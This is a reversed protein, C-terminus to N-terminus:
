STRAVMVSADDHRVAADRILTAALLHPDRERIGPYADLSWKPTLGDSHMVILAGPVLEARFERVTKVNAGVIGPSSVLARRQAGDDVWVAVNGVGAFTLTAALPDLRVVAVAAGRTSRLAGNLSRITQAPPEDAPGEGFARVAEGSAIAALPGHGLGDALLLMTVGGHTRVACADGCVSEGSMTRTLAAVKPREVPAAGRWFTAIMVTGRGVVSHSDFWTSLRMAAGLGIGLTGASSRGDAALAALDAFGPGADTMVLEVAADDAERRVRVLVAGQVAHRHLNTGLETAAIAVEGARHESFGLRKALAAATRRVRGPASADEVAIWELDEVPVTLAEM